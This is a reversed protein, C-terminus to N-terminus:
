ERVSQQDWLSDFFYALIGVLPRSNTWILFWDEEPGQTSEMFVIKQDVIGVKAHMPFKHLKARGGISEFFSVWERIGKKSSFITKLSVGKDAM